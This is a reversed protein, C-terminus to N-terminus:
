LVIVIGTLISLMVAILIATIKQSWNDSKVASFHMGITWNILLVFLIIKIINIFM